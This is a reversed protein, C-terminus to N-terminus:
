LMREVRAAIRGTWWAGGVTLLVGMGLCIRGASSGLLWGIPNAGLLIGFGIGVAPLATLLRGTARPAALQGELEGRIQEGRRATAAIRDVSVALGSGTQVAVQWCAALHVLPPRTRGDRRLADPIDGDVRIAALASPWAPPSGAARELAVAVPLGAALEAALAGLADIVAQRGATRRRRSAPGFGIRGLLGIAVAHLRDAASTEDASRVIARLRRQSAPGVLLWTALAAGLGAGLVAVAPVSM